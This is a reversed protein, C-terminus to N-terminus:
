IVDSGLEQSSEFVSFVWLELEFAPSCLWVVGFGFVGFAGPAFVRFGKLFWPWLKEALLKSKAAEPM